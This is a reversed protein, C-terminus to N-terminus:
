SFPFSSVLSQNGELTLKSFPCVYEISPFLFFVHLFIATKKSGRLGNQGAGRGLFPM